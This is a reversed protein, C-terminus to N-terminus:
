KYLATSHYSGVVIYVVAVVVFVVLFFWVNPVLIHKCSSVFLLSSFFVGCRGTFSISYYLFLWGILNCSNGGVRKNKANQKTQNINHRSCHCELALPSGLLSFLTYAFSFYFFSGFQVLVFLLILLLLLFLARFVNRYTKREKETYSALNNGDWLTYKM